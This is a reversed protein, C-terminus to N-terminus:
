TNVIMAELNVILSLGNTFFRSGDARQETWTRVLDTPNAALDFPLEFPEFRVTAHPRHDIIIERITKRSFINWGLEKELRDTGSHRYHVWVDIDFRNFLGFAVVLGGPRTWSLVNRFCPAPDDFISHVGLLFSVDYFASPATGPDLVSRVHFEAGSVMKRAKEILEPLVDYGHVIATPCLKRLYYAFEGAACGFDAVRAGDYLHGADLAIRGAVRFMEKPTEYRNETLYLRDHSRVLRQEKEM